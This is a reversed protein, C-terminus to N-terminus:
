STPNSSPIEHHTTSFLPRQRLTPLLLLLLSVLLSSILINFYTHPILILEPTSSTPDTSSAACMTVKSSPFMGLFHAFKPSNNPSIYPHTTLYWLGIGHKNTEVLNWSSLLAIEFPSSSQHQLLDLDVELDVGLFRWSECTLCKSPRRYDCGWKGITM